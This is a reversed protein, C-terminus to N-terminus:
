GMFRKITLSADTEESYLTRCTLIAEQDDEDSSALMVIYVQEALGVFVINPEAIRKLFSVSEDVNLIYVAQRTAVAIMNQDKFLSFTQAICIDKEEEEMEDQLLDALDTTATVKGSVTNFEVLIMNSFLLFLRDAQEATDFDM